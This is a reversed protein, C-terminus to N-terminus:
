KKIIGISEVVVDEIPHDGRSKDTKVNEIKLVMDMGEIVNGFATHKADLWPTADATIIFFQSGNTNPGANAMALTGKVLKHPNIEDAFAYGPGGMGDDAWNNDKSNPDGGQIMFGKIVRHFKTGNYFGSEALKTFNEVTNPADANFLELKIDGFNTKMIALTKEAEPLAEPLAAPALAAGPSGVEKKGFIFYGGLIVAFSLIAFVAILILTQNKASM